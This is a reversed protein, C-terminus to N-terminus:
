KEEWLLDILEVVEDRELGAQRAKGAAASLLAEIEKLRAEKMLEKDGLKAYYGKGPVSEIFGSKELEDYARKTTIVSIRLDRALNRLSPLAGDEPLNGAMIIAKLQDVIQQYIPIDSGNSVIITIAM